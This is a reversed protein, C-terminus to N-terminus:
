QKKLELDGTTRSSSIRPLLDKLAKLLTNDIAISCDKLKEGEAVASIEAQKVWWFFAMNKGAKKARKSIEVSDKKDVPVFVYSFGNAISPEVPGLLTGMGSPTYMRHTETSLHEKIKLPTIEAQTEYTFASLPNGKSMRHVLIEREGKSDISVPIVQVPKALKPESPVGAAPRQLATAAACVAPEHQEMGTDLSKPETQNAAMMKLFRFSIPDMSINIHKTQTPDKPDQVELRITDANRARAISPLPIWNFMPTAGPNKSHAVEFIRSGNVFYDTVDVFVYADMEGPRLVDGSRGLVNSMASFQKIQAHTAQSLMSSVLEHTFLEQTFPSRETTVPVDLTTFNKSSVPRTCLASLTQTRPDCSFPIIHLTGRIPQAQAVSAAAAAYVVERIGIDLVNSGTANIKNIRNLISFLKPDMSCKKEEVLSAQGKELVISNANEARRISQLSIWNFLPSAKQMKMYAAQYLQQGRAFHKTVDVFVYADTEGPRFIDGSIGL